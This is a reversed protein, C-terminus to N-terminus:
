KGWGAADRRYRIKQLLGRFDRTEVQNMEKRGGFESLAKLNELKSNRRETRRESRVRWSLASVNKVIAAICEACSSYRVDNKVFLTRQADMYFNLAQAGNQGVM